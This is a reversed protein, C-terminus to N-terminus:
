RYPFNYGPKTERALGCRKSRKSIRDFAAILKAENAKDIIQRRVDLAQEENGCKLYVERGDAFVVSVGDPWHGPYARNYLVRSITAADVADGTIPLEYLM